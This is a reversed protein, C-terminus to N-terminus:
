HRYGKRQAEVVTEIFSRKGLGRSIRDKIADIEERTLRKSGEYPIGRSRDDQKVLESYAAEEAELQRKIQEIGARREFEYNESMGDVLRAKRAFDFHDIVQQYAFADVQYQKYGVRTGVDIFNPSEWLLQGLFSLDKGDSLLWKDLLLTGLWTREMDQGESSVRALIDVFRRQSLRIGGQINYLEPHRLVLVLYREDIFTIFDRWDLQLQGTQWDIRHYYSLRLNPSSLAESLAEKAAMLYSFRKARPADNYSLWMRRAAAAKNWSYNIVRRGEGRQIAHLYSEMLRSTTGSKPLHNEGKWHFRSKFTESDPFRAEPVLISPFSAFIYGKSGAAHAFHKGAELVAEGTRFVVLDMKLLSEIIGSIDLIEPFEGPGFEVTAIASPAMYFNMVRRWVGEPDNHDRLIVGAEQLKAIVSEDRLARLDIAPKPWGAIVERTKSFATALTNSPGGNRFCLSKIDATLAEELSSIASQRLIVYEHEGASECLKKFFPVYVKFEPIEKPLKQCLAKKCTARVVEIPLPQVPDTSKKLM